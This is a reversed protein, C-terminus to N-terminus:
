AAKVFYTNEDGLYHLLYLKEIKYLNKQELNVSFDIFDGWDDDLDDCILIKFIYYPKLNFSAYPM